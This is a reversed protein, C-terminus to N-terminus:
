DASNTPQGADENLAAKGRAYSYFLYVGGGVLSWSLMTAYVFLSVAVASGAPAGLAGLLILAASERTGLGGPTIPLTGVANIFPFATLYDVFRLDLNLARGFLSCSIILVLHNSVSLLGTRALLGRHGLCVHFANYVKGLIAGLSTRTELRRFFAWRGFLNRRFVVFLMVCAGAFVIFFCYMAIRTETQALYFRLRGLIVVLTLLILGLLGIIRDIFVTSVVAAKKDPVETAVYYAKVVDGGTAGFLFANFFHGVFYLAAVRRFPLNVHQARLLLHWRIMCLLLCIGFVLIGAALLPWNGAAARLAETLKDLDGSKALRIFIFAILGLGVCLQVISIIRKKM